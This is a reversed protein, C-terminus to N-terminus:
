TRYNVTSLHRGIYGIILKGPKEAIFHIRWNCLRLKIHREFLREKGDTCVFIREQRYQNLTPESEGSEELAYGLVSFYGKNWNKCCNQLELLAKIVVKLEIQGYRINQLQRNVSDCFDINPFLEERQQWIEQGSNINVTKRIRDQIWNNHEEVHNRCSAHVIEVTESVIKQNGDIRLVELTLYSNNWRTESNFSVALGDIILAFGISKVIEEQYRIESLYFEDEFEKFVDKLFPAKTELAKLYRSEERDVEPDNRWQYIHYNPALELSNIENSTRLIRKVGSATAQRLTGILESMLQRATYIDSAPTKLSLENLVMELEM